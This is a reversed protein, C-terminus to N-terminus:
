SVLVGTELISKAFGSKDTKESIIIPEIRNDIKNVLEFLKASLQWHNPSIENVFFAVDIDSDKGANGKSFSGFIIVKEFDFFVKAQEALEKIKNIIDNDM